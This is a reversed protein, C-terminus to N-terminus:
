GCRAGPDNGNGDQCTQLLARLIPRSNSPCRVIENRTSKERDLECADSFFLYLLFQTERCQTERRKAPFPSNSVIGPHNAGGIGGFPQFDRASNAFCEGFSLFDLRATKEMTRRKADARRRNATQAPLRGAQAASGCGNGSKVKLRTVGGCGPAVRRIVTWISGSASAGCGSGSASVAVAGVAPANSQYQASTEGSSEADPGPRSELAIV